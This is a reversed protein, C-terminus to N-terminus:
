VKDFNEPRGEPSPPTENTGAGTSGTITNSINTFTNTLKEPPIRYDPNTSVVAAGSIFIIVFIIKTVVVSTALLTSASVITLTSLVLSKLSEVIVNTETRNDYATRLKERLEPYKNEVLLNVNIKHDKRHLLFAVIIALIFALIPPTFKIIFNPLFLLLPSHGLFYEIQFIYFIAFFISFFSIIDLIFLLQRRRFYESQIKLLRDMFDNM